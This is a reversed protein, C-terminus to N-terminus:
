GTVEETRRGLFAIYLVAEDVGDLRLLENAADDFFGATTVVALGLATASLVLNEVLHGVDLLVYRYGREGYKHKTRRLAGAVLVIAGAERAYRQGCCADDLADTPDGAQLLALAHDPIEYHYVGPEIGRVSRAAVYLEGPYLAGASPASRFAQVGGGSMPVHTTIGYAQHLVKALEAPDLEADAFERVSRRAAIVDDFRADRREPRPLAVQPHRRYCKYARAIAQRGELSYEPPVAVGPGLIRTARTNEHFLESVSM